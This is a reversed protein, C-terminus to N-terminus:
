LWVLSFRLTLLHGELVVFHQLSVQTLSYQTHTILVHTCTRPFTVESSGAIGCGRRDMENIDVNGFLKIVKVQGSVRLFIVQLYTTSRFM